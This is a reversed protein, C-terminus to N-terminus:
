QAAEGDDPKFEGLVLVGVGKGDPRPRVRTLMTLEFGHSRLRETKDFWECEASLQNIVRITMGPGGSNLYVVDGVCLPEDLRLM